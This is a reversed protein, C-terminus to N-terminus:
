SAIEKGHRLKAVYVKNSPLGCAVSVARTVSEQVVPRDGGGCAVVVGTIAPHAVTELLAERSGGVTVYSVSTRTQTDTVTRDDAKAYCYEESGALTVLVQVEGVGDMATLMDHLETELTGRYAAATDQAPLPPAEAKDPLLSSLLICGMGALGILVILRVRWESERLREWFKRLRM